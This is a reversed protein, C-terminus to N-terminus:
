IRYNRKAVPFIRISKVGTSLVASAIARKTQDVLSEAESYSNIALTLSGASVTKCHM